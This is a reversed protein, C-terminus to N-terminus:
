DYRLLWEAKRLAEPYREVNFNALAQKEVVQAELGNYTKTLDVPKLINLIEQHRNQEALVDSAMLRVEVTGREDPYKAIYTLYDRLAYDKRKLEEFSRGRRVLVERIHKFK